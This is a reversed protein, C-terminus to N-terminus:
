PNSSPDHPRKKRRVADSPKSRVVPPAEKQLSKRAPSKVVPKVMVKSQPKPKEAAVLRKQLEKKTKAAFAEWQKDIMVEGYAAAYGFHDLLDTSSTKTVDIVPPKKHAM